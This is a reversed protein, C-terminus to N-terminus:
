RIMERELTIITDSLHTVEIKTHEIEEQFGVIDSGRQSLHQQLARVAEDLSKIATDSPIITSFDIPARYFGTEFAGGVEYLDGDTTVARHGESSLGLATKDDSVVFTDGFVFGVAPEYNKDYKLVSSASGPIGEKELIKMPQTTPRGEIPIIKIRGLKM